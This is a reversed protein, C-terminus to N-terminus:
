RLVSPLRMNRMLRLQYRPHEDRNRAQLLTAWANALDDITIVPYNTNRRECINGFELAASQPRVNLKPIAM